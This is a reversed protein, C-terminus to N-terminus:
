PRRRVYPKKIGNVALFGRVASATRDLAEGLEDLNMDDLHDVVFQRESESWAEGQRTGEEYGRRGVGHDLVNLRPVEGARGCDGCSWHRGEFAVPSGCRACVTPVERRYRGPIRYGAGWESEIVSRGLKTRARYVLMKVLQTDSRHGFVEVALVHAPVWRGDRLLLATVLSAERPTLRYGRTQERASVWGAERLGPVSIGKSVPQMAFAHRDALATSNATM